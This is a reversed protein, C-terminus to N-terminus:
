LVFSVTKIIQKVQPHEASITITIIQFQVEQRVDFCTIVHATPSPDTIFIANVMPGRGGLVSIDIRQRM